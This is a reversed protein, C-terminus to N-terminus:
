QNIIHEVQKCKDQLRELDQVMTLIIAPTTARAFEQALGFYDDVDKLTRNPKWFAHNTMQSALQKIREQDYM